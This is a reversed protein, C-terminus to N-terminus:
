SGRRCPPETAEALNVSQSYPYENTSTYADWIWM